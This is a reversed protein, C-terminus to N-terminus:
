CYKATTSNASNYLTTEDKPIRTQDTSSITLYERAFSAHCEGHLVKRRRLKNHQLHPKVSRRTQSVNRLFSWNCLITKPLVVRKTNLLYTFNIKKETKKKAQTFSYLLATKMYVLKHQTFTKVTAKKYRIRRVAEYWAKWFILIECKRNYIFLWSCKVIWLALSIPDVSKKRFCSINRRGLCNAPQM